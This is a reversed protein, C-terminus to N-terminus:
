TMREKPFSPSHEQARYISPRGLCLGYSLIRVGRPKGLGARCPNKISVAELCHIVNDLGPKQNWLVSCGALM